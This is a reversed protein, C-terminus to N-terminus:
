NADITKTSDGKLKQIEETTGTKLIKGDKVAIAETTTRNDDMVAVKANTVILDASESNTEAETKTDQNDKCSALIIALVLLTVIRKM